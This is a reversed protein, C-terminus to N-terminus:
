GTDVNLPQRSYSLSPAAFAREPGRPREGVLVVTLDCNRPTFVAPGLFFPFFGM